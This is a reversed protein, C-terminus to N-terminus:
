LYPQTVQNVTNTALSLSRNRSHELLPNHLSLFANYNDPTSIPLSEERVFFFIGIFIWNTVYSVDIICEGEACNLMSNRTLTTTEGHM